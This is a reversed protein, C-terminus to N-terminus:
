IPVPMDLLTSVTLHRACAGSAAARRWNACEGSTIWRLVREQYRAPARVRFVSESYPSQGSVVLAQRELCRTGVRPLLIDGVAAQQFSEAPKESGLSIEVGTKPFDSTHFHEIGQRVFEARTRSGRIISVDLDRMTVGHSAHKLAKNMDYFEHYGLTMNEVSLERKVQRLSTIEYQKNLRGLTVHNTRARGFRTVLIYARVEVGVGFATSPLEYCEIESAQELLMKRFPQTQPGSPIDTGVIFAGAGTSKLRSLSELMFYLDIPAWARQMELEPCLKLIRKRAQEPLEHTGYPPNGIVHDFQQEGLLRDLSIASLVDHGFFEFGPLNPCLSAIDEDVEVGVYGDPMALDYVAKAIQGTGSGLELWRGGSSDLIRLLAEAMPRPTMVQGRQARLGGTARYRKAPIKM